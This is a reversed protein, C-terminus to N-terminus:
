QKRAGFAGAVSGNTFDANFEGVLTHPVRYIEDTQNDNDHDYLDTVGHFAGNFKRETGGGDATGTM